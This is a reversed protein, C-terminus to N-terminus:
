HIVKLMIKNNIKNNIKNIKQSKILKFYKSLIENRADEPHFRLYGCRVVEVTKRKKMYFFQSKKAIQEFINIGERSLRSEQPVQRGALCAKRVANPLYERVWLNKHLFLDYANNRVYLPRLQAIEHASYLDRENKPLSLHAMDLFMNLCIKNEVKREGPKRRIGIFELIGVTLLRTLWLYGTRAIILLDIDDKKESLGLALKGSLGIFTITPIFSLIKTVRQAIVIKYKAIKEEKQRLKIWVPKRKLLYYKNIQFAGKKELLSDLSNIFSSFRPDKKKEWILTKWLEGKTQPFSFLYGYALTKILAKTYSGM